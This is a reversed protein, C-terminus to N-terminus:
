RKMVTAIDADIRCPFPRIGAHVPLSVALGAGIRDLETRIRIYFTGIVAYLRRLAPKVGTPLDATRTYLVRPNELDEDSDRM